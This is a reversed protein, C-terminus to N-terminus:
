SQLFPSLWTAKFPHHVYIYIYLYILSLIILINNSFISKTSIKNKVLFWVKIEPCVTASGFLGKKRPVYMVSDFPIQTGNFTWFIKSFGLILDNVFINIQGFM